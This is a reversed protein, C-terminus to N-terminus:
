PRRAAAAFLSLCARGHTAAAHRPSPLRRHLGVRRAGRMGTRPTTAIRHRRPCNSASGRSRAIPADAGPATSNNVLDVTTEALLQVLHPWGGAERHIYEIGGDGWFAAPFHPRKEDGSSWLPSRSMPETLLLRTEAESFLRMEITRASVLYSPWAAHKLEAHSGAFIWTIRRHTQISERLAALLDLPFVGTAIKEDINEYEDIALLLRQNQDALKANARDLADFLDTLTPDAKPPAENLAGMVQRAFYALSTFASPNQMSITAVRVEGPLIGDLNKLATSKGTRRRGLPPAGPM